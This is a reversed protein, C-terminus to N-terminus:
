SVYHVDELVNKGNHLVVLEDRAPYLRQTEEGVGPRVRRVSAVAPRIGCRECIVTSM